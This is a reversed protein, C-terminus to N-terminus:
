AADAWARFKAANANKNLGFLPVTLSSGKQANAVGFAIRVTGDSRRVAGFVVQEAPYRYANAVTGGGVAQYPQDANLAARLIAMMVDDLDLTRTRRNGNAAKLQAEIQEVTQGCLAARATGPCRVPEGAERCADVLAAFTTRCGPNAELAAYLACIDSNRCDVLVM